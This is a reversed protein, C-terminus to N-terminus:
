KRKFLRQTLYTWFIYVVIRFFVFDFTTYLFTIITSFTFIYFFLAHLFMSIYFLSESTYVSRITLVPSVSHVNVIYLKIAAVTPSLLTLHSSTIIVVVSLLVVVVQLVTSNNNNSREFRTYTRSMLARPTLSTFLIYALCSLLM